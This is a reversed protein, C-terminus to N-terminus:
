PGAAGGAMGTWLVLYGFVPKLLDFRPVSELM